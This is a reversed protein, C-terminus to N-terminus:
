ESKFVDHSIACQADFDTPTCRQALVLPTDAPAVCELQLALLEDGDDTKDVLLGHIRAMETEAENREAVISVLHKRCADRKKTMRAPLPMGLSMSSCM